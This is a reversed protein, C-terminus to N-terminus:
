IYGLVDLPSDAFFKGGNKMLFEKEKFGWTVSLCAVGANAATQIDVESDGVYLTEEASAGLREMVAFLADPAPKKRIGAAENEGVAEILLGDFYIKNLQKVAFDTKNSLIATKIGREKLVRLLELVGDYAKTKDACHEKYHNRFAWLLGDFESYNEMGCARQMLKVVGDGIFSRVEERTRNPFSYATLAANTADTLDDLTDLLTGDLDFVITKYM